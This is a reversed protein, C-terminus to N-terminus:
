SLYYRSKEQVRAITEIIYEFDGEIYSFILCFRICEKRGLILVKSSLFQEFTRLIIINLSFVLLKCYEKKFFYRVKNRIFVTYM